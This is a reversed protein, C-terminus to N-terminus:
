GLRWINIVKIAPWDFEVGLLSNTHYACEIGGYILFFVELKQGLIEM